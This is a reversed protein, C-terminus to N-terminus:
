KVKVKKANTVYGGNAKVKKKEPKSVDVAEWIKYGPYCASVKGTKTSFYKETWADGPKNVPDEINQWCMGPIVKWDVQYDEPFHFGNATVYFDQYVSSAAGEVASAASAGVDKPAQLPQIDQKKFPDSDPNAVGCHENNSVVGNAAVGQNFKGFGNVVMSKDVIINGSVIINSFSATNITVPTKEGNRYVDATATGELKQMYLSAPAIVTRALLSIQGNNVVVASGNSDSFGGLVTESSDVTCAYGHMYCCGKNGADIVIVGGKGSSVTHENESSHPNLGVYMDGSATLSLGADSKIVLGSDKARSKAGSELVVTGTGDTAGAMRLDAVARIYFSDASNITCSGQSNYAQHRAVMANLDRGPRLFLDLAPSIYINGMSMRIESGYGDRLCISGDPEQTIFSMSAFYRRTEGTIPDTLEISEPLNYHQGSICGGPQKKSKEELRAQLSKDKQACSFGEEAQYKLLQEKYDATLINDITTNLPLDVADEASEIEREPGKPDKIEKEEQEPTYPIRLDDMEPYGNKDKPQAKGYRFQQVAAIYPTKVSMLGFASADSLEGSLAQRRRSLVAPPTSATHEDADKPFESITEEKGDAVKGATEQIRYLPIASKSKLKLGYDDEEVPDGEKIGFAESCNVALNRVAYNVGTVYESALGHEELQASVLRIKNDLVTADIMAMGGGRVTAVGYGVHSGTGTEGDTIDCDGPYADGDSGNAHNRWWGYSLFPMFKRVLDLVSTTKKNGAQSDKEGLNYMMRQAYNNSLSDMTNNCPGIIRCTILDNSFLTECLVMTGPQYMFHSSAGIEAGSCPMTGVYVTRGDGNGANPIVIAMGRAADTVLITGVFTSM